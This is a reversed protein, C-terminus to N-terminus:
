TPTCTPLTTLTLGEFSPTSTAIFISLPVSIGLPELSAMVVSPRNPSFITEIVGPASEVCTTAAPSYKFPLSPLVMSSIISLVPFSMALALSMILLILLTM